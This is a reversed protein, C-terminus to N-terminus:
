MLAPMSFSSSSAHRSQEAKPLHCLLTLPYVSDTDSKNVDAGHSLLLRAVDLHADSIM